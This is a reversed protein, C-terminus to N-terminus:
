RVVLSLIMAIVLVLAFIAMGVQQRRMKKQQASVRPKGAGSKQAGAGTKQTNVSAKIPTGTSGKKVSTSKSAM